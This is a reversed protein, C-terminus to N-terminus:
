EERNIIEGKIARDLALMEEASLPIRSKGDKIPKGYSMGNERGYISTYVFGNKYQDLLAISFSLESGMENYANYRVFGVRQIAFSLRTRLTNIDDQHITIRNEVERINKNIEMLLEEIDIGQIGRVIKYYNEMSKKYKHNSILLSIFLILTIVCLALTIEVYYINLIGRIQEM